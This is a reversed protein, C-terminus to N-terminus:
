NNHNSNLQLTEQLCIFGQSSSLTDAAALHLKQPHALVARRQVTVATKPRLVELYLRGTRRSSVLREEVGDVVDEVGRRQAEAQRVLNM